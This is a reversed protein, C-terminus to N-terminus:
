QVQLVITMIIHDLKTALVQVSIDDEWAPKISLRAWNVFDIAKLVELISSIEYIYSFLYHRIRGKAGTCQLCTHYIFVSCQLIM